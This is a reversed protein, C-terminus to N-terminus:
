ATLFYSSVKAHLEDLDVPKRLLDCGQSQAFGVANPEASLILIPVAPVPVLAHFRSCFEYGDMEPMRLDLLILGPAGNNELIQFAERGNSAETVQFGEGLLFYRLAIRIDLDDEVLLISKVPLLESVSTDM